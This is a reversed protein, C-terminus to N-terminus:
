EPAEKEKRLCEPCTHVDGEVRWGWKRITRECDRDDWGRATITLGMERADGCTDCEVTVVPDSLM